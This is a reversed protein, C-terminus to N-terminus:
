LSSTCDAGRCWARAKKLKQSSKEYAWKTGDSVVLVGGNWVRSVDLRLQCVSASAFEKSLSYGFNASKTLTLPIGLSHSARSCLDRTASVCYALPEGHGVRLRRSERIGKPSPIILFIGLALLTGLYAVEWAIRPRQFLRQWWTRKSNLWTGAPQNPGLTAELVTAAFDSDPEIEALKPLDTGLEFLVETLAKCAACHKLHQQLLDADEPTLQQDVWDPLQTRARRCGIGSTRGLIAQTLEETSDISFADSRGQAIKLLRRCTECRALHSDLSAQKDPSLREALIDELGDEVFHCGKNSL